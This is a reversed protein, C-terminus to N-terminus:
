AARRTPWSCTGAQRETVRIHDLIRPNLWEPQSVPAMHGLGPLMALHGRPMARAIAASVNQTIIPSDMGMMVLTRTEVQQLDRLAWTESLGRSFDNIVSPTMATFNDKALEPLSDWFGVGNWFDLFRRMGLDPRGTANAATLIGSIMNIEAFQKRDEVDGKKLFHFIAPEYVTLSKILDPRMMAIKIAVGAGNSHGVLHVADGIQEIKRIVPLAVEGQGTEGHDPKLAQRGYGPLDYAFIPFSTEIDATLHKWQRGSSASSHLAVVPATAPAIETFHMTM